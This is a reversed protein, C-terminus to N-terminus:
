EGLGEIRRPKRGEEDGEPEAKRATQGAARTEDKEVDLGHFQKKWFRRPTIASSKSSSPMALAVSVSKSFNTTQFLCKSIQMGGNPQVGAKAEKVPEGLVPEIEASTLLICADRKSRALITADGSKAKQASRGPAEPSGGTPM